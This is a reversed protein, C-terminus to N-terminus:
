NHSGGWPFTGAWNQVCNLHAEGPWLGFYTLFQQYYNFRRAAGASDYMGGCEADGNIIAITAGFGGQHLNNNTDTSNPKWYRTIVDHMSPKEESPTMYFWIASAFAIYGDEGVKDPNILFDM